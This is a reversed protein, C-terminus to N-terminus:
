TRGNFNRLAPDRGMSNDEIILVRPRQIQLDFGDLVELEGGEVDIV